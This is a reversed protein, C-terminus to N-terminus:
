TKKGNEIWREYATGKRHLENRKERRKRELEEKKRRQELARVVMDNYEKEERKDKWRSYLTMYIGIATILIFRGWPVDM